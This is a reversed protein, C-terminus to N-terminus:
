KPSTNETKNKFSFQSSKIVIFYIFTPKAFIDYYAREYKIELYLIMLSCALIKDDM